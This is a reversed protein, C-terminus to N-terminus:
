ELTGNIKEGMLMRELAAYQIHKGQAVVADYRRMLEETPMEDIVKEVAALWKLALHTDM